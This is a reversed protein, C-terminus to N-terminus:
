WKYLNSGIQVIYRDRPLAFMESGCIGDALLEGDESIFLDGTIAEHQLEEITCVDVENGTEIDYIQFPPIKPLNDFSM